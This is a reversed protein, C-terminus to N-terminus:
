SVRLLADGVLLGVVAGALLYPGFPIAHKLLTRDRRVLALLVSPVAFLVFGAYLGVGFEPWGRYALLFGILGALRVDGYGMGPPYVFWLVFFVLFAGALGILGRVLDEHGGTALWVVVGYGVALATSAIVVRAPLLRTRLDIVALLVGVPVLPLFLALDRHWGVALGVLAGLM